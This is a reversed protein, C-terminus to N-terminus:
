ASDHGVETASKFFSITDKTMVKTWCFSIPFAATLVVGLAKSALRM